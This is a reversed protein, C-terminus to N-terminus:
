LLPQPPSVRLCRLAVGVRVPVAPKPTLSQRYATASATTSVGGRKCGADDPLM